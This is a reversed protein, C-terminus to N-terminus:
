PESKVAFDIGTLAALRATHRRVGERKDRAPQSGPARRALRRAYISARALHYDAEFYTRSREYAERCDATREAFYTDLFWACADPREGCLRKLSWTLDIAFTGFRCELLDIAVARSQDPTVVFNACYVRSHTLSFPPGLPARAAREVCWRVLEASRPQELTGDLSLARRRVRALQYRRYSGWRGLVPWGWRRRGVNHIGALAAAVARAAPEPRGIEDIHSGAIREEVVAWFGWRLRSLPSLDAALLAPVSLGLDRMLRHNHRLTWADPLRPVARLVAPPAGALDVFYVLSRRGQAAPEVRAGRGDVGLRRALPGAVYRQVLALPAQRRERARRM